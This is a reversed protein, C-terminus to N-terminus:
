DLHCTNLKLYFLRFLFRVYNLIYIVVMISMRLDIKRVLKTELLRRAETGGFEADPDNNIGKEEEIFAPMVFPFIPM